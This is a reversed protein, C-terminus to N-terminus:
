RKQTTHLFRHETLLGGPGVITARDEPRRELCRQIADIAGADATPPYSIAHNPDIIAQLKPIMHLRYFPTEGYIM